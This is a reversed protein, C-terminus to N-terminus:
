RNVRSTLESMHDGTRLNQTELLSSRRLGLQRNVVPPNYFVFHKEGAPAGNEDILVVQEGILREAHEKPNAITASACLFVPSSGYFQCIRKLRRIVNAVHSGFVGRYSHLEDIVVFRLTEFLK